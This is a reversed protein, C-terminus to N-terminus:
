RMDIEEAGKPLIFEFTSESLNDNVRLKKINFTQTSGSENIQVASITSNKRDVWMRVEQAMNESESDTEPKMLLVYASQSNSAQEKLLSVPKYNKLFSFFFGEISVTKQNSEEYNSIIVKKDKASYNWITTGNSTIVRGPIAMVYKNGLEAKISGKFTHNERMEFDFSITQISGYKQLLSNYITEANQAVSSSASLSILLLVLFIKTKYPQM